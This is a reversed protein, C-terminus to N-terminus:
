CDITIVQLKVIWPGKHVITYIEIFQGSTLAM